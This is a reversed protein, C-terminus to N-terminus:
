KERSSAEQVSDSYLSAQKLAALQHCLEQASPRDKERYNLCNTAIPLIPHTPNILDIHSKRRECDSVPVQIEGLPFRPDRIKKMRPGPDPFQRTIIQVDLVGFSFTDIMKTYVPPDDLAEPSMYALTGPCMTLPTM